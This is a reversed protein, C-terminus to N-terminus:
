SPASHRAIWIDVLQQQQEDSPATLKLVDGDIEIEIQRQNGRTLWARATEVLRALVSSQAISVILGGVALVDIAKAGEPAPGSRALDVSDVDLELLDLRLRSTIEAIEEDDADPDAGVQMFVRQVERM